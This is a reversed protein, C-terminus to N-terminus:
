FLAPLAPEVGALKRDLRALRHEIAERRTHTMDLLLSRM